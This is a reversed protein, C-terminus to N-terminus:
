IYVLVYTNYKKMNEGLAAQLNRKADVLDSSIASSMNALNLSERKSKGFSTNMPTIGLLFSPRPM